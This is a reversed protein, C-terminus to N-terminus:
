PVLAIRRSLREGDFDLSIWYVGPSATAGSAERGDWIASHAGPELLRDLLSAIRRGSADIVALRVRGPRPTVFNVTATGRAPNPRPPSLELAGSRPVADAVGTPYSSTQLIWNGPDITLSTPADTVHLTFFQVYLPSNEVVFDYPGGATQIRVDVPMWFRQWAQTQYLQLTVDYGGGSPASSWVVQYQPYYEGYIWEQFFPTLDLGSLSECIQEFDETVATGYGYQQVYTGLASFFIADGLIHRLMHLVWSAKRYSLNSDFIRGVNSLDPVYITGSGLFRKADMSTAYAASGSQAEAWLAEGYTAFGENLWIHHFDRCTIADGFWEHTLEHCVVSEDFSGLSTCTQNEMGGGWTFEAEGYKEDLFPYEGFRAAYAAIMTKVKANVAASSNVSEHFLYFQIEMSDGSAPVYWDSFTTYAYSAISVLYTAMPHRCQWHRFATTGNDTSAVLTGNSATIMGSPVTVRVDVSDAKDAPDDKCPWWQRADFPESLTTILPKGKHTLFTFADGFAGIDPTGHYAVTVDVMEGTQYTRDLNVTLLDSAHTFTAALGASTVGDVTMASSNFDLELTTVPGAVVSALMRVSGTLVTTAPDPHLDLDYFHFDFATQNPTLVTARARVRAYAGAKARALEDTVDLPGIWNPLRSPAAPRPVASGTESAAPRPATRGTGPPAAVLLVSVVALALSPRGAASFLVRTAALTKYALSHIRTPM